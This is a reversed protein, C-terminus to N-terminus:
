WSAPTVCGDTTVPGCLYWTLTGGWPRHRHHHPDRHRHRLQRQRDRHQREGHRRRTTLTSECGGLQGRAFDFLTATLSPSSRTDAIFTSFCSPVESIGEFAETLNIGGEFFDPPVVTNGVGHAM